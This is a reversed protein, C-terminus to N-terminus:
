MKEYIKTHLFINLKVIHIFYGTLENSHDKTDSVSVASDTCVRNVRRYVKLMNPRIKSIM